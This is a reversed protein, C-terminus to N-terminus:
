IEYVSVENGNPSCTTVIKFPKGTRFHIVIDEYADFEKLASNRKVGWGSLTLLGYDISTAKGNENFRVFTEVFEKATPPTNIAKVISTVDSSVLIDLAEELEDESIQEAVQNLVTASIQAQMIEAAEGVTLGNLEDVEDYQQAMSLATNEGTIFQEVGYLSLYEAFGAKLSQIAQAHTM